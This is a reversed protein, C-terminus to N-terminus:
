RGGAQLMTVTKDQQPKLALYRLPGMAAGAAVGVVAFIEPTRGTFLGYAALSDTQELAIQVCLYAVAGGGVMDIAPRPLLYKRALWLAPPMTLAAMFLTVFCFLAGALLAAGVAIMLAFTLSM